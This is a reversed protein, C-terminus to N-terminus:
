QQEDGQADVQKLYVPRGNEIKMMVVRKVPDGFNDFSITGTVGKFGDTAALADRIATSQASGARKIADALLMVADYALVTPAVILGSQGYRAMFHRTPENEMTQSWHTTYYALKIQHGGQNFFNEEDWGDGGLPIVNAKLGNRVAEGIIRASEDHGPIFLVDPDMAVARATVERFNPQRLTYPLKALITGGNKAFVTEFTAALGLSYDSAVDILIVVSRANLERRAFEAMTRGQQRDDFCVRFIYDGIRTLPTSTSVNSIMPIHNAQAVRAVAMSHSSFAAGLIGAVGKSVAQEAAVKSGIPSSLNDFELLELPRGLVGGSANIEGVALRVGRISTANAEAAPGSLAYIAAIKIAQSSEAPHPQLWFGSCASVALVLCSFLRQPNLNIWMKLTMGPEKYSCACDLRSAIISM